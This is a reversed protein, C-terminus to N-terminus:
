EAEKESELIFVTDETVMNAAIIIEERSVNSILEAYEVPARFEGSLCNMTFWSDISGVSDMVSKYMDTLSLKASEIIEDTFSGKRVEDLEHRIAELAKMANETEVGSEVVILGKNNILRASCYYCLSMKERVNMFLKSFTGSGFIATMVKIAPFNDFEYTMGARMGIVLKGQKVKQVETVLDSSYSETLFETRVEIIDEKKRKLSSFAAKVTSEIEAEDFNGTVNIQIPCTFLIDKWAEFIEKGSLASIKEKKGLREIGYMEDRCMEEIMRGFSYVRKDDHESDIKEMLLRKERELNEEKFGDPTIDPTFLCSLLLSVGESLIKEGRLSFREDISTLTLSLVQAEGIKMVAPTLSAGYLSALKRNMQTVTPFDKNTRGLLFTLLAKESAKGDLPTIINLTVVSTKFQTTKHTCLRVGECIQKINM